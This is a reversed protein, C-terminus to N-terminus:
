LGGLGGFIHSAIIKSGTNNTQGHQNTIAEGELELPQYWIVLLKVGQLM